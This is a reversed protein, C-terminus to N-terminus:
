SRMARLPRAQPPHKEDISIGSIRQAIFCKAYPTSRAGKDSRLTIKWLSLPVAGLHTSSHKKPSATKRKRMARWAAVVGTDNERVIEANNATVSTAVTM